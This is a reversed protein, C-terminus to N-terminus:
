EYLGDKTIFALDKVKDENVGIQRYAKLLDSTSFYMKAQLVNSAHHLRPLPSAPLGTVLSLPKYQVCLTYEGNQQTVLVVASLWEFM